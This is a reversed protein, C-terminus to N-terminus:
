RSVLRNTVRCSMASRDAGGVFNNDSDFINLGAADNGKAISGTPDTGLYCAAVFNNGNNPFDFTSEFTIANGGIQSGNQDFISPFQNIALNNIFSNSARIKLGDAPATAINVGSIEVLKNNNADSSGQITVADTIVPLEAALAITHFGPGLNFGINDHGAVFQRAPHRQALQM